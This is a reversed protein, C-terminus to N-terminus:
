HGKTSIAPATCRRSTRPARSLVQGLGLDDAERAEDHIQSSGGDPDPFREKDFAHSGWSDIKWYQWDQVIVDIPIHRSRFGDLVDLSEQQTKYRERSQWFGFAWRPMMPAEGTVRRYGAVVAISSPATSSTTTSATASKPGSRRRGVIAVADELPGPVHRGPGEDVRDDLKYRHGKAMPVRAVDNWPLWGQRWHDIVLRDDIWM